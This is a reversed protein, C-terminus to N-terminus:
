EKISIPIQEDIMRQSPPMDKNVPVEDRVEVAPRFVKAPVVAPAYPYVKPGLGLPDVAFGWWLILQAIPLALLGGLVIRWLEGM